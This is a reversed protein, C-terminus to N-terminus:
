SERENMFDKVLDRFGKEMTTATHWFFWPMPYLRNSLAFALLMVVFMTAAFAYAAGVAGFQGILLYNLSLNCVLNFMTIASLVHTKKVYFIYDVYTMYIATFFYGLTLWVVYDMSRHFKTDVFIQYALPVMMNFAVFFLLAFAIVLYSKRVIARRTGPEEARLQSFLYPAWARNFAALLILMVNAVQSAVAYQGAGALGVMAVLFLRDAVRIAQNGLDHPVLGAGFRFADHLARRSFTRVFYGARALWWVAIITGMGSATAVAYMRGQWHLGLVVVFLLSFAVAAFASFFEFYAYTMARDHMRLITAFVQPFLTLAVFAPASWFWWPSVGLNRAFLNAGVGAIGLLGVFAVLPIRLLSSFYIRFEERSRRFYEVSLAGTTGWFLPPTFCTILTTLTAVVGYEAESLYRTLVPLLALPVAGALVSSVSYITFSRALNVPFTSTLPTRPSGQRYALTMPLM